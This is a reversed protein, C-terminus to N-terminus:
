LEPNTAGEWGVGFANFLYRRVVQVCDQIITPGCAAELARRALVAPPEPPKPPVPRRAHIVRGIMLAVFAVVLAGNLIASEPLDFAIHGKPPRLDPIPGEAKKIAALFTM